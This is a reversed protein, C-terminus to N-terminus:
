YEDKFRWEYGGAHKREGKCVKYINAQPIGTQRSAEQTSYYEEIVRNNLIQLVPRGQKIAM